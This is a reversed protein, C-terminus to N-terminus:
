CGKAMQQAAAAAQPASGAAGAAGGAAEGTSVSGPAQAFSATEDAISTQIDANNDRLTDIQSVIADRDALELNSGNALQSELAAIQTENNQFQQNLDEINRFSEQQAVSQFQPTAGTIASAQTGPNMSNIGAFTPLSSTGFGGLTGFDGTQTPFQAGTVGFSGSLLGPGSSPLGTEDPGFSGYRSGEFISTDNNFTPTPSFSGSELIPSSGSILNDNPNFQSITGDASQIYYSGTYYDQTPNTFNGSETPSTVTGPATYIFGGNVTPTEVTFNEPVGTPPRILVYDNEGRFQYVSGDTYRYFENGSADQYTNYTGYEDRAAGLSTYTAGSPLGLEGPNSVAGTSTDITGGRALVGNQASGVTVLGPQASISSAQNTRSIVANPDNYDIRRANGPALQLAMVKAADTQGGTFFGSEPTIGANRYYQDMVKLQDDISLQRYQDPTLSQGLAQQTLGPIQQSQLQFVGYYNNSAGGVIAPNFTGGTEVSIVGTFAQRNIGWTDAFNNLSTQVEPTLGRGVAGVGSFASSVSGISVGVSGGVSGGFFGGVVSTGSTIFGGTGLLSGGGTIGFNIASTYDVYGSGTYRPVSSGGGSIVPNTPSVFGGGYGNNEFGLTTPNVQFDYIDPDVGISRACGKIFQDYSYLNRNQQSYTLVITMILRTLPENIDITQAPDMGWDSKLKQLLNKVVPDDATIEVVANENATLAVATTTILAETSEQATGTATAQAPTAM